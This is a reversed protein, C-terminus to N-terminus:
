ICDFSMSFVLTKTPLTHWLTAWIGNVVVFFGIIIEYYSSIIFFFPFNRQFVPLFDFITACSLFLDAVPRKFDVMVKLAADKESPEGFLRRFVDRFFFNYIITQIHFTFQDVHCLRPVFFFDSNRVPIM